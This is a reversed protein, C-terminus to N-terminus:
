SGRYTTYSYPGLLLAVHHHRGPEVAFAVTVEPHFHPREGFWAGTAFTLTHHGPTVDDDWRVRGDADTDRTPGGALSVALGAAPTGTVSDLVHTSLTSV